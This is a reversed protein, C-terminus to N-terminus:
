QMYSGRMGATDRARPMAKADPDTLRELATRLGPLVRELFPAAKPNCVPGPDDNPNDLTVILAADDTAHLM